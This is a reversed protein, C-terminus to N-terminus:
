ICYHERMLLRLPAVQLVILTVPNMELNCPLAGLCLHFSSLQFGSQMKRKKDEDELAGM